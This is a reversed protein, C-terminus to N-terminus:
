LHGMVVSSITSVGNTPAGPNPPGPQSGFFHHTNHLVRLFFPLLSTEDGLRPPPWLLKQKYPERHFGESVKMQESLKGVEKHFLLFEEM